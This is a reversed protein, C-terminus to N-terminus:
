NEVWKEIEFGLSIPNRQFRSTVHFRNKQETKANQATMGWWGM